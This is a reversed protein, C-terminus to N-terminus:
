ASGGVSELEMALLFLICCSAHALHPLNWESDNQEGAGYASLHRFAASLYRTKWEPVKKWNDPAYKEAGKTLVRVVLVMAKWPVLDWRDKAQDHKEGRAVASM